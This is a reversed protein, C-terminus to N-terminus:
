RGMVVLGDPVPYGGLVEVSAEGLEFSM